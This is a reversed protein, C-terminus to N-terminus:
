HSLKIRFRFPMERSARKRHVLRDSAPSLRHARSVISLGIRYAVGDHGRAIRRGAVIRPQGIMEAPQPVPPREVPGVHQHPEPLSKAVRDLERAEKGKECAAGGAHRHLRTDAEMRKERRQHARLPQDGEIGGPRRRPVPRVDLDHLEGVREAGRGGVRRRRIEACNGGRERVVRDPQTRRSPVPVRGAVHGGCQQRREARQARAQRQKRPRGVQGDEVGAAAGEVEGDGGAQDGAAREDNGDVRHDGVEGAREAHRRPQHQLVIGVPAPRRARAVAVPIGRQAEIVLRRGAVPGGDGGGDEM